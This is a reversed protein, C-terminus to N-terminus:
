IQAFTDGKMLLSTTVTKESSGFLATLREIGKLIM